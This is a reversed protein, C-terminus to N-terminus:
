AVREGLEELLAAIALDLRECAAGAGELSRSRGAQELEHAVAQIGVAGVNASSGKLGHASAALESADGRAVAEIVRDRLEVMEDRFLELLEDALETDGGVRDLLDQRHLVNMTTAPDGPRM